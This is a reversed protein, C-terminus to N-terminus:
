FRSPVVFESVNGRADIRGIQSVDIESETFWMNGDSGLVIHRPQSNDTPIRFQKFRGLSAAFQPGAIAETAFEARECASTALLTFVTAVVATAGSPTFRM